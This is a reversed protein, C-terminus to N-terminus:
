RSYPMNEAPQIQVAPVTFVTRVINGAYSIMAAPESRCPLLCDVVFQLDHGTRRFIEEPTSTLFPAGRVATDNYRTYDQVSALCLFTSWDM